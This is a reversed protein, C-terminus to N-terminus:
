LGKLFEVMESISIIMKEAETPHVERRGRHVIDNRIKIAGKCKDILDAPLEVEECFMKLVVSLNGSLGVRNIFGDISNKSIDLSECRHRIFTSLEIELAIVGEILAHRYDEELCADKANLLFIKSLNHEVESELFTKLEMLKSEELQFPDNTTIKVSGVGAGLLM